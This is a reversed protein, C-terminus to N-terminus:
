NMSKRRTWLIGGGILAILSLVCPEPIVGESFSLNDISSYQGNAQTGPRKEFNLTYDEGSDGTANAIIAEHSGAVYLATTYSWNTSGDSDKTLTINYGYAEETQDLANGLDFSNLIFAIGSAVANATNTDWAGGLHLDEVPGFNGSDHFEWDSDGSNWTLVIDPTAGSGDSVTWGEGSGAACSVYNAPIDKNVDAAGVFGITTAKCIM